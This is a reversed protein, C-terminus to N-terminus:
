RDEKMAEDMEERHEFARIYVEHPVAAMAAHAKVLELGLSIGGGGAVGKWTGSEIDAIIDTAILYHRQPSMPKHHETM